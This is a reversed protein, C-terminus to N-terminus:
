AAPVDGTAVASSLTRRKLIEQYVELTKVVTHRLTFRTEYSRRGNAGLRTRLAPDALLREIRLRLSEADGRPVLFGTKGEQVSEAIGGVASAVVPLGARMAELISRPFGEWNTILLYIQAESLLADVDQRQGRFRVREGIGLNAALRAVSSMLEGDGILDLEWSFRTLGALAQLLTGHDKQNEFRAVMILRPPSRGPDGRLSPSVDPMGNHIAVMQDARAVGSRLALERDFESVTIIRDALPAALREVWRYAAAKLAPVGPTFSWGHATFLVPVGLSRAALRGLIGAKSSHLSVLDPSLDRLAARIERFARPDDRLSIPASLYRLVVTPIGLDELSDTFPGAGGTIVGPQFGQQRIADALDRVHIQAGGIPESRTVVYAVRVGL